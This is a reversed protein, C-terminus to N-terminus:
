VQFPVHKAYNVHAGGHISGGFSITTSNHSTSQEVHCSRHCKSIKKGITGTGILRGEHCSVPVGIPYFEEVYDVCFENVEEIVYGKAISGEPHARNHIYKKLVAFIDNM